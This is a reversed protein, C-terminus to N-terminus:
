ELFLYLINRQRASVRFKEELTSFMERAKREFQKLTVFHQVSIKDKNLTVDYYQKWANGSKRSREWREQIIWSYNILTNKCKLMLWGIQM